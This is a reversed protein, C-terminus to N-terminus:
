QAQARAPVVLLAQESRAVLGRADYVDSTAIGVAGPGLTTRAELCVWDGEPPRLVHVSLETNLFNWAAPDLAASVGSASDVCCLLRQLPSTEEGAVLPIRPRMWVVAPGPDAVGGSIWRWETADLYGPKWSAPSPQPRGDDPTHPLAPGVEGPGALEPFAWARATAVARDTGDRLVAQHLSVSRGPRVVGADVTLPGLPVPGLLDLAISGLPQGASQELARGLLGAPPGGHQADSRWPGGTSHTAEFGHDTPVFFAEALM